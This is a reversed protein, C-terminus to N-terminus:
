PSRRFDQPNIREIPRGVREAYRVCNGTGGPTGDWVAILVRCLNVMYENRTQMKWAAYGGPSVVVVHYARAMLDRYFQQSAEPWRSEQGVFPIAALFPVGIELCVYAFDQDVGLAMGSIAYQPRLDLLKRKLQERVWTRVPNYFDYGGIKDPRHGTVAIPM